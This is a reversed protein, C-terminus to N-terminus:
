TGVIGKGGVMKGQQIVELLQGSPVIVMWLAKPFTYLTSPGDAHYPSM